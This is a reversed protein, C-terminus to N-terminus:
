RIGLPLAEVRYGLLQWYEQAAKWQGSTIGAEYGFRGSGANLVVTKGDKFWAEGGIAARRSINTHVIFGRDTPMPTQELALNIGRKDITWLYRTKNDGHTGYIVNDFFGSQRTQLGDGRRLMVAENRGAPRAPPRDLGVRLAPHYKGPSRRAVNTLRAFNRELILAQLRVAPIALLLTDLLADDNEAFNEPCHNFLPASGDSPIGTVIEADGPNGTFGGAGSAGENLLDATIRLPSRLRVHYIPEPFEGTLMGLISNLPAAAPDIRMISCEEAFFPGMRNVRWGQADVMELSPGFGYLYDRRIRTGIKQTSGDALKEPWDSFWSGDERINLIAGRWQSPAIIVWCGIMPDNPNYDCTSTKAALPSPPTRDAVSDVGGPLTWDNAATITAQFAARRDALGVIDIESFIPCEANLGARVTGILRQLALRGSGYADENPARVTISAQRTCGFSSDISATLGQHRAIQREAAVTPFVALAFWAFVATFLWALRKM